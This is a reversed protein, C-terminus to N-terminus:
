WAQQRAAGHGSLAVVGFLQHDQRASAFHTEADDPSLTTAELITLLM